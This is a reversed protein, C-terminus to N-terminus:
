ITSLFLDDEEVDVTHLNCYLIDETDRLDSVFTATHNDPFYAKCGVVDEAYGLVFGIKVHVDHTKSGPSVPIHM